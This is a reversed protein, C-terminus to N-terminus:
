SISKFGRLRSVCVATEAVAETPSLRKGGALMAGLLKPPAMTKTALAPLQRPRCHFFYNKEIKWEENEIKM